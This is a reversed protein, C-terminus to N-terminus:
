VNLLPAALDDHVVIRDRCFPCTDHSELWPDICKVHFLHGCRPFKRVEQNEQYTYLCISCELKQEPDEVKYALLPLSNIRAQSLGGTISATSNRILGLLTRDSENGPALYCEVYIVLIMWLIVVVLGFIIVGLQTSSYQFDSMSSKQEPDEAKYASLPLSDIEAQKLGRTISANRRVLRQLTGNSLFCKICLGILLWLLCAVVFFIIVCLSVCIIAVVIIWPKSM